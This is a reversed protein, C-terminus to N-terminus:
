ETGEALVLAVAYFHSCLRKHANAGCSGKSEEAYCEVMIRRLRPTQIPGYVGLPLYGDERLEYYEPHCRVIRVEKGAESPTVRFETLSLREVTMTRSRKLM